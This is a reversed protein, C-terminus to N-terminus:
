KSKSNTLVETPSSECAKDTSDTRSYEIIHFGTFM